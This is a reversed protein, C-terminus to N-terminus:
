MSSVTLIRGSHKRVMVPVAARCLHYAGDLHVGLMRRWDEPSTDTLLGQQAVGANHILVDISGCRELVANVVAEAATVDAVDGCVAFAEGGNETIERVVAAAGEADARYNVAVAYGKQAFLKAAAAGIGRSAGSILVTKM